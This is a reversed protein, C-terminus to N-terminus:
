SACEYPRRRNRPVISLLDQETRDPADGTDVVPPLEWVNRPMYSLFRRILTFCEEESAAVNDITGATDVAIGAGGLEEKTLKQGLSREVVPPGAAFVHSTGKVMVSWHSLIARGAPGGAASGM